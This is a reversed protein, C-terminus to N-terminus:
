VFLWSKCPIDSSYKLYPGSRVQYIGNQLTVGSYKNKRCYEQAAELTNEHPLGYPSYGAPYDIIYYKDLEDTFQNKSKLKKLNLQLLTDNEERYIKDYGVGEYLSIVEDVDSSNSLCNTEFLIVHPMTLPTM